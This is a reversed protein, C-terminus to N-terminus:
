GLQVQSGSVKAIGSTGVEVGASGTLKAQASSTIEVGGDGSIKVKGTANIEIDSTATLVIKGESTGSLEKDSRSLLFVVEDGATKMGLSSNGPKDWMYVQNGDRSVFHRGNLKGNDVEIPPPTDSGNWLGGVVFPRQRDGGEFAVLVEDNVEPIWVTGRSAGNGPAAVRAWHSEYDASLSPFRLKVRGLREPDDNDTVIGVVVGAAAGSGAGGAGGGGTGGGGAAAGAVLGMLSRDQRGSVIFHTRYGDQQDYTHRTHTLTYRGAFPAAVHSVSVAAGAKVRPNGRAIGTAEAFASGVQEALAEAARDAEAQSPFGGEVILVPSGFRGALSGPDDTLQAAASRAQATGVIAQKTAPDWGRVEVRSVQGSSTVRPRFDLLDQGFVLQLPDSSSFDGGEPAEAAERPRRFELKGEVVAVEFGVERALGKLFEWDTQGTQGVHDHVRGSDDITGADLGVQSAITRAIDSYKVNRFTASSRGRSLRHAHDYGRAVLLPARGERYVGELATVEGSILLSTTGDGVASTSVKVAGGVRLHAIEAANMEATEQFTLEFTDPLHLHDDVAVRVLATEAAGDLPAGDVEVKIASALAADPM